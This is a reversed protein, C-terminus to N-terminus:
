QETLQLQEGQFGFCYVANDHTVFYVRGNAIAVSAAHSYSSVTDGSSYLQNGTLADLAYLTAKGALEDWEAVSYPTGDKKAVRSTEGTSLTFVMGNAIVAPSPSVIDPSIWVPQLDPRGNAQTLKLAVISGNAPINNKESLQFPSGPAGAVPAYMWRTETDVDWWTSFAGRFGRGDYNKARHAIPDTEVLPTSHDAGGLSRSDLLYLRGNRGGALVLDRGMSSFVMPTIGPGGDDKKEIAEDRPTFYDKVTLDKPNLAVVTDRLAKTTTTPPAYMVQAYVTGNNGIATGAIGAFGGSQPVFLTVKKANSLLDVAYLANQYGDCNGGTTAYVVNDWINLSTVKANPPLYQIPSILNEGTSSNLVHLKGDSSVTYLAALQTLTTPKMPYVSQSLPPFYPSPRKPKGGAVAPTRSAEAAFHMAASSSGAMAIPSTLGGPCVAKVTQSQPKDAQYELHSQWLLHNLDADVSFVKDSSAGFMLMEKFGRYTILNGNVIPPTLSNLGRSINEAQFKYLLKLKAVNGKNILRESRAWGNRQPSGGPMPWDAAFIILSSAIALLAVLWVKRM